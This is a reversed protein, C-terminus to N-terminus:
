PLAAASGRTASASAGAQGRERGRVSAPQEEGFSWGQRTAEAAARLLARLAADSLRLVAAAVRLHHWHPRETRRGRRARHVDQCPLHHLHRPDDRRHHLLLVPVQRNSRHPLM